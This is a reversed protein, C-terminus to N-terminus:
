AARPLHVVLTAGMEIPRCLWPTASTNDVILPIGKREAVKALKPIDAVHGGPNAISECFIAKTRKTCARSVQGIRDIDVFRAEWGFRRITHTFQTVTGGYLRNSVVINDGPSMLPFLAM